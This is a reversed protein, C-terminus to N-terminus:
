VRRTEQRIRKADILLSIQKEPILKPKHQEAVAISLWRSSCYCSQAFLEGGCREHM